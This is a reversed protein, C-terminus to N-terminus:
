DGCGRQIWASSGNWGGPTLTKFVVASPMFGTDVASNSVTGSIQAKRREAEAVKALTQSCPAVAAVPSQGNFRLRSSALTGDSKKAVAYLVIKGSRLGDSSSLTGTECVGTTCSTASFQSAVDKGNLVVHITEPRTEASMSINNTKAISSGASVGSSSAHILMANKAPVGRTASGADATSATEKEAAVAETRSTGVSFQCAFLAGALLLLRQAFKM